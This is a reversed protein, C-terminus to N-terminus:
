TRRSGVSMNRWFASYVFLNEQLTHDVRFVRGVRRGVGDGGGAIDAVRQPLTEVGSLDGRGELM